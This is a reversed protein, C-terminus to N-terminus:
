LPVKHSSEVLPLVAEVTETEKIVVVVVVGVVDVVDVVVIDPTLQLLKFIQLFPPNHTM